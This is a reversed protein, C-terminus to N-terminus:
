GAPFHRDPQDEPLKKGPGTGFVADLSVPGISQPLLALGATVMAASAVMMVTKRIRSRM